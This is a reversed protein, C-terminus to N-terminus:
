GESLDRGIVSLRIKTYLDTWRWALTCKAYRPEGFKTIPTKSAGRSSEQLEQPLTSVHGFLLVNRWLDHFLFLSWMSSRMDSIRTGFVQRHILVDSDICIDTECLQLTKLEPDSTQPSLKRNQSSAVFVFARSHVCERKMEFRTATNCM